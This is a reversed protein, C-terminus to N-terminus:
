KLGLTQASVWPTWGQESFLKLSFETSCKPDVACQLTLGKKFHVSNAQYWFLDVSGNSNCHFANSNWGSENFFVLNAQDRLKKGGLAEWQDLAWEKDYVIPQSPTATATAAGVGEAAEVPELDLNIYERYFESGTAYAFGYVILNAIILLYVIDKRVRVFFSRINSLMNKNKNLRRGISTPM